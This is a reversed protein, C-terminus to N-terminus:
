HSGAADAAAVPDAAVAASDAAVVASDAAVAASDVVVAVSDAAVAMSDAAVASHVAEAIVAALRRDAVWLETPRGVIQFTLPVIRPTELTSAQALGDPAAKDLDFPEEAARDSTVRCQEAAEPKDLIVADLGRAEAVRDSTAVAPDSMVRGPDAAVM